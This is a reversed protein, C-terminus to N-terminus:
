IHFPTKTLDSADFRLRIAYVLNLVISAIKLLIENSKLPSVILIFVQNLSLNM